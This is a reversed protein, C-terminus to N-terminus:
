KPRNIIAESWSGQVQTSWSVIAIIALQSAVRILVVAGCTAVKM